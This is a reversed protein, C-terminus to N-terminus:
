YALAWVRRRAHEKIQVVLIRIRIYLLTRLVGAEGSRSSVHWIPDCLIVLLYFERVRRAKLKLKWSRGFGNELVKWSDRSRRIVSSLELTRLCGCHFQGVFLVLPWLITVFAADGRYQRRATPSVTADM